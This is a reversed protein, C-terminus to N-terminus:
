LVHIIRIVGLCEELGIVNVENKTFLFLNLPM